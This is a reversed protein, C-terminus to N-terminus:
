KFSKPYVDLLVVFSFGSFFFVFTTALCCHIDFHPTFSKCCMMLRCIFEGWFCDVSLLDTPKIYKAVRFSNNIKTFFFAPFFAIRWHMRQTGSTSPEMPYVNNKTLCIHLFLQDSTNAEIDEIIIMLEM